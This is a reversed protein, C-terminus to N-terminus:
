VGGYWPTYDQGPDVVRSGRSRRPVVRAEFDPFLGVMSGQAQILRLRSGCEVELRDDSLGRHEMMRQGPYRTGVTAYGADRVSRTQM